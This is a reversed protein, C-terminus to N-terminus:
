RLRLDRQTFCVCLYEGFELALLSAEYLHVWVIGGRRVGKGWTAGWRRVHSQFFRETGPQHSHYSKLHLRRASRVPSSPAPQLIASCFSVTNHVSLVVSDFAASALQFIRGGWRQQPRSSSQLRHGEGGPSREQHKPPERLEETLKDEM